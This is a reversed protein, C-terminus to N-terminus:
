CCARSFRPEIWFFTTNLNTFIYIQIQSLHHGQDGMMQVRIRHLIRAKYRHKPAVIHMSLALQHHLSLASWIIHCIHKSLKIVQSFTCTVPGSATCLGRPVQESTSSHLLHRRNHPVGHHISSFETASYNIITGFSFGTNPLTM